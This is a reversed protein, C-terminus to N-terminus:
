RPNGAHHAAMIKVQNSQIGCHPFVLELSFPGTRTCRRWRIPRCMAASM